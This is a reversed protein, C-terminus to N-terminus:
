LPNLDPDPCPGAEPQSTRRACIERASAGEGRAARLSALGVLAADNLPDWQLIRAYWDEAAALDAREVHMRAISLGTDSYWPRVLVTQTDYVRSMADFGQEMYALALDPRDIHQHLDSLNIYAEWADPDIIAARNFMDIAAEIEGQASLVLGLARYGLAYDGDLRVAEEAHHRARALTLQASETETRGNALATRVRSRLGVEAWVGDSFRIVSQSMANALGAHAPAAEPDLELARAYLRQASANDAATFQYYFEDARAILAVEQPMDSRPQVWWAMVLLGLVLVALGGGAAWLAWGPQSPQSATQVPQIPVADVRLRYGRKSVTEVYTPNRADDGLAQRLKWVARSLADENVTVGTWVTDFLTDKSVTRGGARVLACLLAMVRPELDIRTEGAWLCGNVPEVRFEDLQFDPLLLANQTDQSM